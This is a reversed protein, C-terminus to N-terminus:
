LTQMLPDLGLSLDSQSIFENFWAFDSLANGNLPDSYSGQSSFDMSPYLSLMDSQKKVEAERRKRHLQLLTCAATTAERTAEGPYADNVAVVCALAESLLAFSQVTDIVLLTCIAQFPIYAVHHWPRNTAVNSHVAQIARQILGIVKNMVSEPIELKSAHLRRHICLALNCQALVSPPETHVRNLVDVLATILSDVSLENTPDLIQSYPLLELLEVTYEGPQPIPPTTDTNQLSVRSRGLDYSMWINLHQAVGIVRKRLQIDVLDPSASFASGRSACSMLGAADIVHLTTCSALWAEEPKATLRLYATRLVWATASHLSPPDAISPDLLRKSLSVLSLETEVDQTDSFLLALAAVGSLFADQAGSRQGNWTRSISQLLETRDVFSYCPHVKEFYISGLRRMEAESLIATLAEQQRPSSTQREGLFLNWALMRMPSASQDSSELTM